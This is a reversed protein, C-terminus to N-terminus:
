YQLAYRMYKGGWPEEMLDTQLKLDQSCDEICLSRLPLISAFPEQIEPSTQAQTQPILQRRVSEFGEVLRQSLVLADLHLISSLDPTTCQSKSPSAIYLHGLGPLPTQYESGM